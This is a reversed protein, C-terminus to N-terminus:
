VLERVVVDVTKLIEEWSDTQILMQVFMSDSDHLALAFRPDNRGTEREDPNAYNIWIRLINGSLLKREFAPMADNHWSVDQFDDPLTVDISDFDPFETEYTAIM